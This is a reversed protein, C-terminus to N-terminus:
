AVRLTENRILAVLGDDDRNPTLKVARIDSTAAYVALGNSGCFATSAPRGRGEALSRSGPATWKAPINGHRNQFRFHRWCKLAWAPLFYAAM